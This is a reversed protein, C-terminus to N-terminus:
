EAGNCFELAPQSSGFQQGTGGGARAAIIKLANALLVKSFTSVTRPKTIPDNEGENQPLYVPPFEDRRVSSDAKWILKQLLPEYQQSPLAPLVFGKGVLFMSSATKMNLLTTSENAISLGM